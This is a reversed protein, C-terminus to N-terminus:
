TAETSLTISKIHIPVERRPTRNRFRAKLKMSLKLSNDPLQTRPITFVIKHINGHHIDILQKHIIRNDHEVTLIMPNTAPISTQLHLYRAASQQPLHLTLWSENHFRLGQSSLQCDNSYDVEAVPQMLDFVAPLGPQLDRRSLSPHRRHLSFGGDQLLIYRPFCLTEVSDEAATQLEEAGLFGAAAQLEALQLPQGVPLSAEGLLEEDLYKKQEFLLYVGEPVAPFFLQYSESRASPDVMFLPSSWCQEPKKLSQLIFRVLARDYNMQERKAIILQEDRKHFSNNLALYPRRPTASSDPQWDAIPWILPPPLERVGSSPVAERSFLSEEAAALGLEARISRNIDSISCPLANYSMSAGKAAPRKILTVIEPTYRESHDGTIVLLSREYLGFEQLKELLFELIRLSGRLQQIRTTEPNPELKEDTAIPVHPGQLHLYKFLKPENSIRAEAQFRRYLVLDHYDFSHTMTYEGPTVFHDSVSFYANGLLPQLFYPTITALWLDILTHRSREHSRIPVANDLLNPDYSLTQLVYPYGECRYGIKKLAVFLSSDANFAQQLYRAHENDSGREEHAPYEIGTLMAPVAYQTSPIPSRMRDFCVFDKFLENLEPYADVTEKFLQEGLCDVVVLILNDQSGFAFKGGEGVTYERHQSNERGQPWAILLTVLQACLVLGAIRWANRSLAQRFRWAALLVASVAVVELLLASSMNSDFSSMLGNRSGLMFSHLHACLWLSFSLGICLANVLVFTKAQRIFHQCVYFLLCLIALILGLSAFLPLPRLTFEGINQSYLLAAPFVLSWALLLSAAFAALHRQSFRPM